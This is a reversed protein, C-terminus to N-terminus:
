GAEPQHRQPFLSSPSSLFPPPLEKGVNLSGPGERSCQLIQEPLVEGGGGQGVGGGTWDQTGQTLREARDCSAVCIEWRCSLRAEQWVRRPQPLFCNLLGWHERGM